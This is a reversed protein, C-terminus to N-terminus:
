NKQRLHYLWSADKGPFKLFLMLNLISFFFTSSNKSVKDCYSDRPLDAIMSKINACILQVVGEKIM